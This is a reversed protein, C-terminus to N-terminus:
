RSRKKKLDPKDDDDDFLDEEAHEDFSRKGLPSDSAAVPTLLPSAKRAEHEAPTDDDFDILENPDDFTELAPPRGDEARADDGMHDRVEPEHARTEGNLFDRATHHQEDDEGPHHDEQQGDDTDAQDYTAGHAFDEEEQGDVEDAEPNDLDDFDEVPAEGAESQDSALDHVAGHEESATVHAKGAKTSDGTRAEVGSNVDVTVAPVEAKSNDTADSPDDILFDDEGWDTELDPACEGDTNDRHDDQATASSGPSLAKPDQGNVVNPANAAESSASHSDIQKDSTSREKSTTPAVLSSEKASMDKIAAEDSQGGFDGGQDSGDYELHQVEEQDAAEYEGQDDYTDGELYFEEDEVEDAEVGQPHQEHDQTDLSDEVFCQGVDAEDVYQEEEEDAQYYQVNPIGQGSEAAVKLSQLVDTFSEPTTLTLFLPPIAETSANHHLHLYM